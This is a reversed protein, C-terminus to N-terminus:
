TSEFCKTMYDVCLSFFFPVCQDYPVAAQMRNHYMYAKNIGQKNVSGQGLLIFVSAVLCLKNIPAYKKGLERM